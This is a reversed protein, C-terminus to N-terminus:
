YTISYVVSGKPMYCRVWTGGYGHANVTLRIEHQNERFTSKSGARYEGHQDASAARCTITSRGANKGYIRITKSGANDYVLPMVWHKTGSCNQQVGGGHPHLDFCHAEKGIEPNGLYASQSRALLSAPLTPLVATTVLAILHHRKM